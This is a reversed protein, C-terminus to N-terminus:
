LLISKEEAVSVEKIYNSNTKAQKSAKMKARPHTIANSENNFNHLPVQSPSL